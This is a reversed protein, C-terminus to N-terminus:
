IIRVSIVGDILLLAKKIDGLNTANVDLITYAYDGKSKNLMNEINIKKSSLTKSISGIVDPINRGTICIRKEAAMPLNCNPFNVSNEINGFELYNKLELSAMIACNEESEETSAGLHPITIVNEVNVLDDTPFDTVYCGIKGTSIAEKIDANNVLEARAFNLIKVGDKLKAITEKNIMHKTADVFPAHLSIFDCESYIEDIKKARRIGRSVKWASDTSIFPDYGIVKMKLSHCANAVLIGIAGLGIIGITKGIIESGAFKSKNKEVLKAVGNEGKLTQKWNIGDVIKRSSLFLGTLALEKVANANAGPTNFVVIGKESCKDIPINNVGAGARAVAKLNDKLEMEHMNFSRLMIGDPNDCEMVVKYKDSELLSTGKESIKNLMLIDFM